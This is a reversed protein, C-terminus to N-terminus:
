HRREPGVSYVAGQRALHKLPAWAEWLHASFRSHGDRHIITNKKMREEAHKKIAGMDTGEVDVRLHSSTQSPFWKPCWVLPYKRLPNVADYIKLWQLLCQRTKLSWTQMGTTETSIYSSDIDFMGRKRTINKKWTNRISSQQILVANGTRRGEM